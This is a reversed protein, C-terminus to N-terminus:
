VFNTLITKSQVVRGFAYQGKATAEWGCTVVARVILYKGFTVNVIESGRHANVVFSDLPQLSMKLGPVPMRLDKFLQQQAVEPFIISLALDCVQDLAAAHADAVAEVIDLAGYQIDFDGDDFESSLM